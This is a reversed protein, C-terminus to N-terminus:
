VSLQRQKHMKGKMWSNKNIFTYSMTTQYSQMDSSNCMRGILIANRITIEKKIVIMDDNM